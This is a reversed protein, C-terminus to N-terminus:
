AFTMVESEINNILDALEELDDLTFEIENSETIASLNGRNIGDVDFTAKDDIADIRVDIRIRDGEDYTTTYEYAWGSTGKSAIPENAKDVNISSLNSYDHNPNHVIGLHNTKAIEIEDSLSQLQKEPVKLGRRVKHQFYEVDSMESIVQGGHLTEVKSGVANYMDEPTSGCGRPSVGLSVPAVIMERLRNTHESLAEETEEAADRLRAAKLKENTYPPNMSRKGAKMFSPCANPIDCCVVMRTDGNTMFEAIMSTHKVGVNAMIDVETYKEPIWEAIIKAAELELFRELDDMVMNGYNNIVEKMAESTFEELAEDHISM